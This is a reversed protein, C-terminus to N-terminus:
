LHKRDKIHFLSNLSLSPHCLADNLTSIILVMTSLWVHAEPKAPTQELLPYRHQILWLINQIYDRVNIFLIYISRKKKKEKQILFKNDLFNLSAQWIWYMATRVWGSCACVPVVWQNSEFRLDQKKGHLHNEFFFNNQLKKFFVWHNLYLPNLYIDNM